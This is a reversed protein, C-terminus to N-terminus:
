LIKRIKNEISSTSYGEIIPISTVRGGKNLVFESGVIQEISYDGGKALIDPEIAKIL